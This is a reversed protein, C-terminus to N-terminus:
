IHIDNNNLTGSDNTLNNEGRNTTKHHKTSGSTYIILDLLLQQQAQPLCQPM